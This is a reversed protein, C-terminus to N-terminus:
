MGDGEESRVDRRDIDRKSEEVRGYCGEGLKEMRAKDYKRVLDAAEDWQGLQQFPQLM